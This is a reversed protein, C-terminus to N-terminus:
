KICIIGGDLVFVCSLFISGCAHGSRFSALGLSGFEASKLKEVVVCVMRQFVLNQLLELGGDFLEGFTKREGGEEL